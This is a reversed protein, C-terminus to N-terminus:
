AIAIAPNFLSNTAGSEGFGIAYCGELVFLLAIGKIIDDIGQFSMKKKLLLFVSTFIGALIAELAIVKGFYNRDVSYYNGAASPYITVPAAAM